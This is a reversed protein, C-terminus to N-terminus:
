PRDSLTYLYAAVDEAETKSLGTDPMVTNPSFAAPDRLFAVLTEARNPLEGAFYARRAFSGLDPGVTGDAWAVGPIVHCAGCGHAGIADRGAAPNGGSVPKFRAPWDPHGDVPGERAWDAYNGAGNRVFDVVAGVPDRGPVGVAWVSVALVAVVGLIIPAPRLHLKSGGSATPESDMGSFAVAAITNGVAPFFGSATTAARM